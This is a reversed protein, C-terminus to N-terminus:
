FTTYVADNCHKKGELIAATVGTNSIPTLGHRKAECLEVRQWIKNAFFAFFRYLLSAILIPYLRLM